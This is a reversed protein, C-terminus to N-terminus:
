SLIVLIFFSLIFEETEVYIITINSKAYCSNPKFAPVKVGTLMEGDLATATRNWNMSAQLETDADLLLDRSGLAM